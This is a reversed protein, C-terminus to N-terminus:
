ARKALLTVTIDSGTGGSTVPQMEYALELLQRFDAATVSIADGEADNLTDYATGNRGQFVVTASGFTGEIQVSADAYGPFSVPLGTDADGMVWVAKVLNTHGNPRYTVTPTIDAM